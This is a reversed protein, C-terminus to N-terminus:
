DCVMTQVALDSVGKKKDYPMATQECRSLGDAKLRLIQPAGRYQCDIFYSWGPEATLTWSNHWTKGRAFGNDPVLTPRYVEDITEGDKASLLAVETLPADGPLHWDAPATAPCALKHAPMAAHAQAQAFCFAAFAMVAIAANTRMM